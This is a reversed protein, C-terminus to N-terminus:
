PVEQVQLTVITPGQRVRPVLGPAARGARHAGPLHHVGPHRRRGALLSRCVSSAADYSALESMLFHPNLDRTSSTAPLM